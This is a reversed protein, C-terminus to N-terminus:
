VKGTRFLFLRPRTARSESGVGPTQGDGDEGVRTPRRSRFVKSAVGWRGGTGRANWFIHDSVASQSVNQQFTGCKTPSRRAFSKKGERSLIRM